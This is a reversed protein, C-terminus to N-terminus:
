DPLPMARAIERSGAREPMQALARGLADIEVAFLDCLSAGPGADRGARVRALGPLQRAQAAHGVLVRHGARVRLPLGHHHDRVVAREGGCPVRCRKGALYVDVDAGLGVAAADDITGAEGVAGEVAQFDGHAPLGHRLLAVIETEAGGRGAEDPLPAE